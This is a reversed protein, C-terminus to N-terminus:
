RRRVISVAEVPFERSPNASTTTMIQDIFISVLDM